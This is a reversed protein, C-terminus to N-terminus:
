DVVGIRKIKVLDYAPSYYRMHPIYIHIRQVDLVQFGDTISMDKDGRTSLADRDQNWWKITDLQTNNLKAAFWRIDENPAYTFVFYINDPPAFFMQVFRIHANDM